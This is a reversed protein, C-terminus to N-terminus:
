AARDVGVGVVRDLQHAAGKFTFTLAEVLRRSGEAFACHLLPELRGAGTV